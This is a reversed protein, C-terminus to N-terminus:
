THEVYSTQGPGLELGPLGMGSVGDLRKKKKEGSSNVKETTNFNHATEGTELIFDKKIYQLSTIFIM